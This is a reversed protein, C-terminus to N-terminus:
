TRNRLLAITEDKATLLQRLLENEALAKDREAKYADREKECDAISYQNQTATGHNVGIAQGGSINKQNIGRPGSAEGSKPLLPEGPDGFLWLLNINEFSRYLKELVEYGPKSKRGEDFYNRVTSGSVGLVKGFAEANMHLANMLIKLRENVTNEV